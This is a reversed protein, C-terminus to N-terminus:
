GQDQSLLRHLDIKFPYYTEEWKSLYTMRRMMINNNANQMAHGSPWYCQLDRKQVFLTDFRSLKSGFCARCM